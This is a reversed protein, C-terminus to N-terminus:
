VRARHAIRSQARMVCCPLVRRGQEQHANPSQTNKARLCSVGFQYRNTQRAWPSHKRRTTSFLTLAYVTDLDLRASTPACVVIAAAKVLLLLLPSFMHAVSDYVRCSTSHVITQALEARRKSAAEEFRPEVHNMLRARPSAGCGIV